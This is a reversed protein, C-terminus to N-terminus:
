CRTTGCLNDGLSTGGFIQPVIANGTALNNKTLIGSPVDIGAAANDSTLNQIVAGGHASSGFSIGAYGNSRTENDIVTGGDDMVIGFQRNAGSFSNSVRGVAGMHIGAIGGCFLVRVNEVKSSAGMLAICVGAMGSVSGNQVTVLYQGSNIGPVGSTQTCATVPYGTCTTPGEVSFGGLDLTVFTSDIQVATTNVPVSLNGTLRYSGHATITVPWGAADGPFCGGTLACAQNIEIVGDSAFAPAALFVFLLITLRSRM